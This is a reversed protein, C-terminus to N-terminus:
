KISAYSIIRSYEEDSIFKYEHLLDLKQSYRVDYSPSKPNILPSFIGPNNIKGVFTAVDEYSNWTGYPEIFGHKPGQNIRFLDDKYKWYGDDGLVGTGGNWYANEGAVNDWRYDFLEGYKPASQEAVAFEVEYQRAAVNLEEQLGEPMKSNGPPINFSVKTSEGRGFTIAPWIDLDPYQLRVNAIDKYMREYILGTPNERAQISHQREHAAEHKFTPFNFNDIKFTMSRDRSAFAGVLEVPRNVSDWAGAYAGNFYDESEIAIKDFSERTEPTLTDWYDRLRGNVLDKNGPFMDNFVLEKGTLARLSEESPYNYKIRASFKTPLNDRSFYQNEAPAFYEEVNPGVAIRNFNDIFIKDGRSHLSKGDSDLGVFEIPSTTSEFSNVFSALKSSPNLFVKKRFLKDTDTFISKSDEDIIFYGKTTVRPILGEGERNQIEIEGGPLPKMAVYDGEDIRLFPNGERFNAIFNENTESSLILKKNNLDFSAYDGKHKQGDFFLNVEGGYEEPLKDIGSTLEVGNVIVKDDLPVFVQGSDFGLRGNFM